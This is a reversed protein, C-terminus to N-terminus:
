TVPLFGVQLERKSDVFLGKFFAGTRAWGVNFQVHAASILILWLFTGLAVRAKM